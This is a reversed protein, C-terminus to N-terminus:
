LYIRFSAWAGWAKQVKASVPGIQLTWFSFFSFTNTELSNQLGETRGGGQLEPRAAPRDRRSSTRPFPFRTRVERAPESRPARLASHLLPLRCGRADPASSGVSAGARGARGWPTVAVAVTDASCRRRGGAM